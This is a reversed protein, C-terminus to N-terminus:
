GGQLIDIEVNKLTVDGGVAKSRNACLNVQTPDATAQLVNVCAAVATADGGSIEVTANNASTGGGGSPTQSILVTVDKLTVDGGVATALNKCKNVQVIHGSKAEARALNLCASIAVANGGTITVKANNFSGPPNALAATATASLILATLGAARFAM